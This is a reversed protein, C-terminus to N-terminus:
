EGASGNADGTKLLFFNVEVEQVARDNLAIGIPEEPDVPIPSLPFGFPLVLWNPRGRWDDVDLIVRVIRTIDSVRTTGSNNVDAAVRNADTLTDLGLIDRRITIIDGVDVGTALPGDEQYSGSIAFASVESPREGYYNGNEDTTFTVSGGQWAYTIDVGAVPEGALSVTGKAFRKTLLNEGDLTMPNDGVPDLWDQLRTSDATGTDWSLHFRGVFAESTGPCSSNGGNLTGRVRRNEDFYCSGSSGVEFTGTGYDMTFHHRPPTVVGSNWTIQNNLIPMGQADSIGIKQVDGMPHHFHTILGSVDGASRDWGAFYHDEATFDADTIELLMFDTAQLGARYEVGVYRTPEPEEAPNNCDQGTYDFDVAWLDYIPTFGDMCHFGTLLYPRGDRATNNILNGSCFGVGEAVVLNIRATGSKEDDWGDGETCNANVHCNNADGFDKAFPNKWRDPRYVHDIRWLHFPTTEPLPGRYTLTVTEGPLFDTFLRNKASADVQTFPGRNGHENHLTLRGGAPLNLQDIFLALGRTGPVNFSQSWTWEGNEFAYTEPEAAPALDLSLPASFRTTGSRDDEKVLSVVDPEALQLLSQQAHLAGSMLGLAILITKINKPHM